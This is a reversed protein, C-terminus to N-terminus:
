SSRRSHAVTRMTAVMALMVIATVILIRRRATDQRLLWPLALMLAIFAFGWFM